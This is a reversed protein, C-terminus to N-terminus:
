LEEARLLELAEFRVKEHNGDPHKVVWTVDAPTATAGDLTFADDLTATFGDAPPATVDAYPAAVGAALLGAGANNLVAGQASLGIDWGASDPSTVDLAVQGQLHLYVTGAGQNVSWQGGADGLPNPEEPLWGWTFKPYGSNGDVENYYTDFRVRVDGQPTRIVFSRNAAELTHTEYDYDFWSFLAWDEYGDGDADNTSDVTWGGMPPWRVEALAVRDLPAAQVDGSGSTASNLQVVERRFRVDWGGRDDPGVGVEGDTFSFWVWDVTSISAVVTTYTSDGNDSTTVWPGSFGTDVLPNTEGDVTNTVDTGVASGASCAALSLIWITRATM